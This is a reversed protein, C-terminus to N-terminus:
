CEVAHRVGDADALDAVRVAREITEHRAIRDRRCHINRRM